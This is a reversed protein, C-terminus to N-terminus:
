TEDLIRKRMKLLHITRQIIGYPWIIFRLWELLSSQTKPYKGMEESLKLGKQLDIKGLKEVVTKKAIIWWLGWALVESILWYILIQWITM